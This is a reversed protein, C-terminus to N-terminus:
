AAKKYTITIKQGIAVLIRFLVDLSIGFSDGKLIRTIRARSTQSKKALGTVTQGSKQFVEIIKRTVNDRMEWEMAHCPNLGMAEALEKPNRCVTAQTKVKRKM